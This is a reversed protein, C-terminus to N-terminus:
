RIEIMAYKSIKWFQAADLIQLETITKGDEAFKYSGSPHETILRAKRCMLLITKLQRIDVETFLANDANSLTKQKGIGLFGGEKTMVGKSKLDKQTGVIYWARNLQETQADLQQQRRTLTDMQQEVKKNIAAVKKHLDSMQFDKQQIVEKLQTIETNQATITENLVTIRRKLSATEVGSQKLKKELDEVKQQNAELMENLANIDNLLAEKRSATNEVDVLALQNRKEKILRLNEEIEAITSELDNSISDKQHMIQMLRESQAVQEKLKVNQRFIFFILLGVM